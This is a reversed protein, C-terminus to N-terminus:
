LPCNHCLNTHPHDAQPLNSFQPKATLINLYAIDLARRAENMTATAIIDTNTNMYPDDCLTM